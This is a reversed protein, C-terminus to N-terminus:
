PKMRFRSPRASVSARRERSASAPTTTPTAWCWSSPSTRERSAGLGARILEGGIGLRQFSKSVAMPALALGARREPGRVFLRTFLIHGVVAGGAEAVLSLEPLFAAGRRLAGVLDAENPRGFADILVARVGADDAATERRIELKM